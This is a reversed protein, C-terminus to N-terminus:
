EEDDKITDNWQDQDIGTMLIERQNKSLDPLADQILSKHQLWNLYRQYQDPTLVTNTPGFGSAPPPTVTILWAGSFLQVAERKINAGFLLTMLTYSM